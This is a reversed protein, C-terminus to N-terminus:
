MVNDKSEQRFKLNVLKLKAAKNPSLEAKNHFFFFLSTFQIRM